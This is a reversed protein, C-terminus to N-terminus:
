GNAPAANWRLVVTGGAQTSGATQLRLEAAEYTPGPRDAKLTLLGFGQEDVALAGADVTAGGSTLWLHYAQGEPPVPLRAVMVVVDPLDPRTFLKGYADSDATPPKLVQRTTKPSDVVELVLEQQRSYFTEVRERTARERDLASSLRVSWVVSAAVILVAAAAVWRWRNGVPFTRLKGSGPKGSQSLPSLTTAEGGGVDPPVPGLQDPAPVMEATGAVAGMVRAKMEAPPVLPSAGALALPLAHAAVAGEAALRRCDPCIALHAEVARLEDDLAGLAYADLADRVEDCHM